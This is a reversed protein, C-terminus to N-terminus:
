CQHKEANMHRSEVLSSKYVQWTEARKIVSLWCFPTKPLTPNCIISGIDHVYYTVVVLLFYNICHLM